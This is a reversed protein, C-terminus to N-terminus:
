QKPEKKDSGDDISTAKVETHPAQHDPQPPTAQTATPNPSPAPEEPKPALLEHLPRDMSADWAVFTESNRVFEGNVYHGEHYDQHPAGRVVAHQDAGEPLPWGWQDHGPLPHGYQDFGPGVQPKPTSPVDATVAELVQAPSTSQLKQQLERIKELELEREADHIVDNFSSRVDNAHRRVQVFIKGFKRMLDPLKDPGIFVMAVIAIVIMEMPGIGFM